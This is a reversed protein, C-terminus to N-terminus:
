CPVGGETVGWSEAAQYRDSVNYELATGRFRVYSFEGGKLDWLVEISAPVRLGNFDRYDGCRGVWPTLVARGGGGDRYRDARVRVFRGEEDVEFIASVPLGDQLLTARASREDIPDWRIQGGVFGYPFWM